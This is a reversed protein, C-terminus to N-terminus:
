VLKIDKCSPCQYLRVERSNQSYIKDGVYVEVPDIFKGVQGVEVMVKGCSNCQPPPNKM